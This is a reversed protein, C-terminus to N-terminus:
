AAYFCFRALYASEVKTFAVSAQRSVLGIDLALSLCHKEAAM